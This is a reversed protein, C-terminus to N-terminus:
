VDPPPDQILLVGGPSRARRPANRFEYVTRARAAQEGTPADYYLEGDGGLALSFLHLCRKLLRVCEASQAARPDQREAIARVHFPETRKEFHVAIAAMVLNDIRDVCFVARGRDEGALTNVVARARTAWVAETLELPDTTLLYRSRAHQGGLDPVYHKFLLTTDDPRVEVARLRAKVSVLTVASTAPGTARPM